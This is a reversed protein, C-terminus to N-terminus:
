LSTVVNILVRCFSSYFLESPDPSAQTSIMMLPLCLSTPILLRWVEEVEAALDELPRQREGLVGGVVMCMDEMTPCAPVSIM